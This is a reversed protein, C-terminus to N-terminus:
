SSQPPLDFKFIAGPDIVELGARLEGLIAVLNRIFFDAHSNSIAVTMQERDLVTVTSTDLAMAEGQPMAPTRVVTVNWLSPPQPANPSGFVYNGDADKVIQVDQFFDLPNVIVLNPNYGYTSLRTLAEGIVDVATEGITPVFPTAQNLLGNIKGQGGVGNIIRNELRTLAKLLIARDIAAQLAANDALVQKSAPTWGAITVIDATKLEGEFDLEAKVDGEQEQEAADGSVTLSLYEVKDSTTPRSPLVDLLRPAPIVPGYVGPRRDSWGPYETDNSTGKGPNVLAARLSGDVNVRMDFKSVRMGREAQEAAAKFASDESIGDMARSSITILQTPTGDGRYQGAVFEQELAGMRASIAACEARREEAFVRLQTDLNKLSAHISGVNEEQTPM